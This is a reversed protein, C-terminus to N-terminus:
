LERGHKAESAQGNAFTARCMSKLRSMKDNYNQKKNAQGTAATAPALNASSASVVPAQPSGHHSSIYASAKELEQDVESRIEDHVKNAKGQQWYELMKNKYATVKVPGFAKSCYSLLHALLTFDHAVSSANDSFAYKQMTQTRLKSVGDPDSWLSVLAVPSIQEELEGNGQGANQPLIDEQIQKWMFNCCKDGNPGSFTTNEANNFQETCQPLQTPFVMDLNSPPANTLLNNQSNQVESAPRPVPNAEKKEVPKPTPKVKIKIKRNMMAEIAANGNSGTMFTSHSSASSIRTPANRSPSSVTGVGGAFGQGGIVSPRLRGALNGPSVVGSNNNNSSVTNAANLPGNGSTSGAGNSPGGASNQSGVGNSPGASNQPGGSPVGPGNPAARSATAQRAKALEACMAAYANYAQRNSFDYPKLMTSPSACTNALEQLPRSTSLSTQGWTAHIMFMVLVLIIWKTKLIVDGAFLFGKQTNYAWRM